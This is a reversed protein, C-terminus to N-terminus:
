GPDAERQLRISWAGGDAPAYFLTGGFWPVSEVEGLGNTEIQVSTPDSTPVFVELRNGAPADEGSAELESDDQAWDVATLPGPAFRVAIKRMVDVYATRQGEITNTECNVEFFGYVMPVLGDRAQSYMHADGCAERWTWITAGFRNRDQESLHRQFFDDEEARSPTHGWEGTLVPAGEYLTAAEDAAKAYGEEVIGPDIGGQYIHPSYVVQDDHEFPPPGSVDLPAWLISPEFVFLRKPAGVEAEAARMARLADEYFESLRVTNAQDFQNPENMLDYGAVADNRAFRSVLHAFMQVYRTRIGVGGPGERDDFFARWAARVAPTIERNGYDCRVEDDDFTAWEPAGDWGGAPRNNACVEDPPAALSANWADQHLDLLTYVGRERLMAVSRAFDDLYAEDYEGPAPEVRSWSLLLRVMNWGMGAIM